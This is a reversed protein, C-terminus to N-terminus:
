AQPHTPPCTPPLLNLKCAHQHPQGATPSCFWALSSLPPTMVAPLVDVDHKHVLVGCSRCRLWGGPVREAGAPLEGPALGSVDMPQAVEAAPRLLDHVQPLPAPLCTM